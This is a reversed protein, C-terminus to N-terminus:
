RTNQDQKRQWIAYARAGFQQVTARVGFEAAYPDGERVLEIMRKHRELDSEWAQATQHSQIVRMSVFAFLPVLMTRIQSYLFRNGCLEGLCLHFKLDAEIVKRIDRKKTTTRMEQLAAELPGLEPKREATLRAALGELAGGFGGGTDLRTVTITPDAIAKGTVSDRVDYQLVSAKPGIQLTIDPSPRPSDQAVAFPAEDKPNYLGLTTDPYGEEELKTYMKYHHGVTLEKIVFQGKEDAEVWPVVGLQIEVTGKPLDTDRALVQAHSVPSGSQDIVVGKITATSKANALTACVVLSAAM